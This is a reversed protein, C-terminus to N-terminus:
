ASATAGSFLDRPGLAQLLTIDYADGKAIVSYGRKEDTKSIPEVGEGGRAGQRRKDQCARQM